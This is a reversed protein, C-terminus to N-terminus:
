FGGFLDLVELAALWEDLMVLAALWGHGASDSCGALRALRASGTLSIGHRLPCRHGILLLTKRENQERDLSCRSLHRREKENGLKNKFPAKERVSM